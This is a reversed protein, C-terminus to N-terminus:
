TFHDIFTLIYKNGKDTIPLHGVVVISVADLFEKTELQDGLHPSVRNGKKRKKCMCRM